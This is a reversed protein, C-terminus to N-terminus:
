PCLIAEFTGSVTYTLNDSDTYQFALEGAVTSSDSSAIDVSGGESSGVGMFGDVNTFMQTSASHYGVAFSDIQFAATRGPPPTDASESGCHISGDGVIVFAQDMYITAYGNVPTFTDGAYSATLTSAVLPEPDSGGGCAALLVVVVLSRM